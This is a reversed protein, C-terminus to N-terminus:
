EPRGQAKEAEEQQRATENREKIGVKCAELMLHAREKILAFKPDEGCIELCKELHFEALEFVLLKTYCDAAHFYPLPNKPDLPAALLYIQGAAEYKGMRHLCAASGLSHRPQAPDMMLLIQFLYLAEKYKGQNYLRYAQAYFYEITEPKIDLIDKPMAGSKLSQVVMSMTEEMQKGAMFNAKEMAGAMKLPNVDSQDPAEQSM